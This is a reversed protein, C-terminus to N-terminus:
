EGDIDIFEDVLTADDQSVVPIAKENYTNVIYQNYNGIWEMFSAFTQQDEEKLEINDSLNLEQTPLFFSAGTPLSREESGCKIWHQVPLRKQRGMTSFPLGMTKFADKNDIEWIFPSVDQEIENGEVDVPNILRVEGLLVRVRKVQRILKKTEDPLADFDEFYGAPKGCNFGGMNDKLDRKLDEAMITKTYSREESNYKKYMFRQVFVRLEAGEAYIFSDNPLQLRYMGSPLVEMNKVKGKVVVQGMVASNWIRLRPLTSAKSSGSSMDAGMGMAQAMEAFNATNLTALTM